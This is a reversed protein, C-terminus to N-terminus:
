LHARHWGHPDGSIRLYHRVLSRQHRTAPRDVSADRRLCPRQCLGHSASSAARAFNRAHAIWSLCVRRHLDSDFDRMVGLGGAPVMHSGGTFGSPAIAFTIAALLAQVMIWLALGWRYLSLRWCGIIDLPCKHQILKAAGAIGGCVFAFLVAIAGFFLWPDKPWNLQLAIDAPMLEFVALVISVLRAAVIAAALGVLITQSYRWYENKGQNTYTLYKGSV